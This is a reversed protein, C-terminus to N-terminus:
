AAASREICVGVRRAERLVGLKTISVKVRPARFEGMLLGAIREALVEVLGYHEAVLLPKLQEVVTAYNITDSVKHSRFVAAGPLAMEIDLEVLQPAAKEYKYLGIRAPLRLERIFIFDM